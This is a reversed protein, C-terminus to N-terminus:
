PSRDCKLGIPSLINPYTTAGDLYKSTRIQERQGQVLIANGIAMAMAMAQQCQIGIGTAEGEGGGIGM